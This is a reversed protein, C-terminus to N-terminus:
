QVEQVLFFELRGEEDDTGSDNREWGNELSLVHALVLNCYVGPTMRRQGGQGILLNNSFQSPRFLDNLVNKANGRIHHARRKSIDLSHYSAFM